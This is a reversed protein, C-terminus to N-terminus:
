SYTLTLVIDTSNDKGTGDDWTLTVTQHTSELFEKAYKIEIVQGPKLKPYPFIKEPAPYATLEESCSFRINEADAIGTNEIYLYSDRHEATLSARRSDEEDQEMRAIQLANLQRQQADLKRQHALYGLGSAILPVAMAILDGWDM